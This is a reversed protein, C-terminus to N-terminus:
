AQTYTIGYHETGSSDTCDSTWHKIVGSHTGDQGVVEESGAGTATGQMVGGQIAKMQNKEMAQFAKISQFTNM